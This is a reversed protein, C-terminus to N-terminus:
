LAVILAERTAWLNFRRGAVCSVQTRNRPRFSEGPSPFPLGSWCEQRHRSFGMSSPAQYAVTWLTVFLWVRSLSKVKVKWKWLAVILCVWNSTSARVKGVSCYSSSANHQFSIFLLTFMSRWKSRECDGYNKRQSHIIYVLIDCLSDFIHKRNSIVLSQGRSEFKWSAM